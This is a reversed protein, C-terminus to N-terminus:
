HIGFPTSYACGEIQQCSLVCSAARVAALACLWSVSQQSDVPSPGGPGGWGVQVRAM